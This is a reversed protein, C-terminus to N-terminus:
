SLPRRYYGRARGDLLAQLNGGASFMSGAGTLILAGITPDARTADLAAALECLLDPGIANHGDSRDLTLTRVNGEDISRILAM